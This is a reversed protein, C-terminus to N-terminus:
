HLIEKTKLLILFQISWSVPLRLSNNVIFELLLATFALAVGGVAATTTPVDLQRASSCFSDTFWHFPGVIQFQFHEAIEDM